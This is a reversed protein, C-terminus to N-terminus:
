LDAECDRNVPKVLGIFTATSCCSVCPGGQLLQVEGELRDLWTVRQESDDTDRRYHIHLFKLQLSRAVSDRVCESAEADSFQISTLLCLHQLNTMRSLSAQFIKSDIPLHQHQLVLCRVAACKGLLGFLRDYQECCVFRWEALRLTAAAGYYEFYWLLVQYSVDSLTLRAVSTPLLTAGDSPEQFSLASHLVNCSACHLLGGRTVVRVDLDRLNPCALALTRMSSQKPFWCPPVSLALLRHGLRTDRLLGELNVDLRFHFSNVNLEVVNVLSFFLAELYRRYVAGAKPYVLINPREPLLLICLERVRQWSHLQRPEQSPTGTMLEGAAFTVLQSPLIVVRDCGLELQSLAVCSWWDHPRDRRVNACVAACNTFTLSQDPGYPFQVSASLESTFTFTELRDLQEHLRSCQELANAFSGRVFHVHLEILNPCFVLLEWLLDFSRDGGVEVYLRRLSHYRIVGWMHPAISRMSDIESDVVVDSDEVLSLELHQLYQLELMLMLLQSPQLACGVCSLRRLRVCRSIQACLEAPECLVCNTLVLERVAYPNLADLRLDLISAHENMGLSVTVDHAKLAM